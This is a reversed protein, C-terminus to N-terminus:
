GQAQPATATTWEAKALTYLQTLALTAPHTQLSYTIPTAYTVSANTSPDDVNLPDSGFIGEVTEYTFDAGGFADSACHWGNAHGASGAMELIYGALSVGLTAGAASDVPFHVGAATRNQAVRAAHRLLQNEALHPRHQACQSLDRLITAVLFAETAHGSPLAGHGPTQIMPQIQASYENPRRCALLHKCQMEILSIAELSTQILEYTWRHRGPHLPLVAGFPTILDTLESLIEATRESRQDAYYELYNLQKAFTEVSPRDLRAIETGDHLGVSVADPTGSVPTVKLSAAIEQVIIMVRVDASWTHLNAPDNFALPKPKPGNQDWTWPGATTAHGM